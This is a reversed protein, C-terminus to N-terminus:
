PKWQLRRVGPQKALQELVTPLRSDLLKGRWLLEYRFRHTQSATTYRMACSGVRFGAASLQGRIAEDRPGQQDSLLILVSRHDQSLRTEIWKVLWLVGVGAALM